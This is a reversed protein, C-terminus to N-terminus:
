LFNLRFSVGYHSDTVPFSQDTVLPRNDTRDYFARLTIHESLDYDATLRFHRHRNGATARSQTTVPNRLLTQTTARSYELRLYLGGKDPKSQREADAMGMFAAWNFQPLHSWRYGAIVAWENSHSEIMRATATHLVLGRSMRRQASFTLGQRMTVELGILPYFNEQLAISPIHHKPTIVPHHAADPVIGLPSGDIATWDRHSTYNGVTYIGRYSHTLEIRSFYPSLYHWAGLGTYTITWNPLMSRIGSLANFDIKRSDGQGRVYVSRFAASLVEPNNASFVADQPQIPSGIWTTGQLFPASPYVAGETMATLRQAIIGQAELFNQWAPTKYEDDVRGRRFFSRLGVTSMSLFGGEIHPMGAFMYQVETRRTHTHHMQLSLDLHPLPHLIVHADLTATHAYTAPVIHGTQTDLWGRQVATRIFGADTFGLTFPIGPAFGSDEHAQGGMPAIKPLFGTLYTQRTDSYNVQIRRLMLALYRLRDTPTVKDNTAPTGDMRRFLDAFSTKQRYFTLADFTLHTDINRTQILRNGQEARDAPTYAGREWQYFARYTGSGQMWQTATFFSTPLTYTMSLNQRYLMPTGGHSISQMVSDRWIRYGDPEKDRHKTRYPPEHVIANTGSQWELRLDSTAQWRVNMERNWLFRHLHQQMAASAESASSQLHRLQRKQYFRHMDTGLHIIEPLLHVQYRSLTHHASSLHGFPLWPTREPRFDYHLATRWDSQRDQLVEPSHERRTHHSYSWSFNAPDYPMPKKGTIGVRVRTLSFGTSQIGTGAVAAPLESLKKPSQSLLVDPELPNYHPLTREAHWTVYLPATLKFREPLLRGLEWQTSIDMHQRDEWEREHPRQDIAGFGASYHAGDAHVSGIDSLRLEMNAHAAWGDSVEYGDTRLENVWVEAKRVEGSRNRVGIMLTRVDSLTPHGMVSLIAGRREDDAQSFLHHVDGSATDRMVKLAPLRNLPINLLNAYPWVTERDATLASSYLGPPTPTLPQSYEYFNQRYDTGLRVFVELDGQQLGDSSEAHTYLQLRRYRRLDYSAERCIAVADQPALRQITISLSQENARIPGGHAVDMSQVADPPLVYNVPRRDSNEELNITGVTFQAPVSPTANENQLPLTYPRWTGRVLRFSGFRLHVPHSFGTLCLRMFRLSRFNRLHGLRGTYERIPIRYLYWTVTETRGNPLLVQATRSDAVYRSGPHMDKPSLPIAYEYFQEQDSLTNDQNIDEGDPLSTAAMPSEATPTSNGETGNYYKYRETIPTQLRDYIESRHHLFNDGAPDTLPSLPAQSWLYIQKSSVKNRLRSLYDAYTPFNKEEESTLGNLGVDQRSIDTGSVDFGHGVAAHRPVRGWVTEETDKATTLGNEHFKRGDRLIDESLNGLQLRLEGGQSLPKYIFPDLLWFEIYEINAEEFDTHHLARMIGGWNHEPNMLSGDSALDHSNLNYPGREDPYYSLNLTHLYSLATLSFDRGPFLERMEVARSYHNSRLDANAALYAPMRGSQTQTFVPDIHYWSLLARHAGYSTQNNQKAEAAWVDTPSISWPTASLHWTHANLLDEYGRANEFDDIYGYSNGRNGSRYHGPQLRAWEADFSIYSPESAKVWPLADLWETLRTSNKRWNVNVGWMTNRMAEEGPTMKTLTPTEGLHMWSAGINWEPTLAYNLDFGMLTRRRIPNPEQDEYRIDVPTGSARLEENIIRVAGTAYDVEYDIGETLTMGGARVSVTGARVSGGGFNGGGASVYSGRLLFRNREPQQQAVTHTSDYLADFIYPTAHNGLANRVSTRFPEVTPLIITGLHSDVTYGELYDFQGDPLAEGRENLRDAQLLQLIPHQEGNPLNFYPLYIGSSDTRALIDLDLNGAQFINGSGIAYVNRMMLRYTLDEAATESPKLLALILNDEAGGQRESAFEGVQHTQGQLTYRYAVALVEDPDLRRHLSLYGLTPHLTYEEESLKRANEIREYSHHLRYRSQLLADVSQMRRIDPLHGLAAYIGGQTNDPPNEASWGLNDLAVINRAEEYQSQKNTVWVEIRDIHYSSNLNPLSHMTRDFRNRFFHALFFHRREDYRDATIEFNIRSHGHTATSRQTQTESRGAVWNIQLRGMQMLGSFGTLGEAGGVLSNRSLLGVRGFEISRIMEDELGRYALKFRRADQRHAADTNYDFGFTLRKGLTGNVSLHIDQGVDFYSHERYQEQLTPNQTHNSRRGASLEAHGNVNLRLIGSSFTHHNDPIITKTSVSETSDPLGIPEGRLYRLYQTPSLVIPRGIPRGYLTYTLQYNGKVADYDTQIGYRKPMRVQACLGGGASKAGWLGCLMWLALLIGSRFKM